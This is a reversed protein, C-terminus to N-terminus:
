LKKGPGVAPGAQNGCVPALAGYVCPFQVAGKAAPM